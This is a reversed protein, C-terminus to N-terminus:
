FNLRKDFLFANNKHITLQKIPEYVEERVAVDKPKYILNDIYQENFYPWEKFREEIYQEWENGNLTSRILMKETEWIEYKLTALTDRLDTIARTKESVGSGYSNMDFNFGINIKFRKGYQEIACPVIIANGKKAIDVIGWYCPLMPLNPSLNWTGEIFYMLNGGTQLHHIMNESVARRDEKVIENFYYVGNLGLFKSDITGQLHEYDGSLLYYHERIAESIVEIDFKGIHTVAYIIPRTTFVREDKILQYSFGEFRNKLKYVNLVFFHIKKRQNLTLRNWIKKEDEDRLQYYLQLFEEKRKEFEEDSIGSEYMRKQKEALINM